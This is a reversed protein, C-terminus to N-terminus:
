QEPGDSPPESVPSRCEGWVHDGTKSTLSGYDPNHQIDVSLSFLLTCLCMIRITKHRM